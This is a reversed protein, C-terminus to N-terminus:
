EKQRKRIIEITQTIWDADERLPIDPQLGINEYQLLRRGGVGYMDTLYIEFAQSPLRERKGYNSGYTLMGRTTQGLTTVGKLKKLQLILIEGQSVTGYNMLVYINGKRSYESLLKLFPRSVKDAGGENNRLDVILDPASLLHAISDRFQKSKQMSRNDASFNKIHLYDVSDALRKFTFDPGSKPLNVHDIDYLQKSYIKESFSSYFYSNLLSHHSYKENPVLMWNKFKPHAYIAKFHGPLYEYLHIAIQGKQWITTKSDIVVGTYETPGSRFIGVTYFTDYHFIGELSDFPVLSLKAQLSDVDGTFQPFDSQSPINSVQYFGLHNDKIPFILQALHYFYRYDSVSTISDLLLNEFLADYEALREGKVQDKFSPTKELLKRLAGLDAKYSSSVQAKSSLCFVLALLISFLRVFSSNLRRSMTLKFLNHDCFPIMGYLGSKRM